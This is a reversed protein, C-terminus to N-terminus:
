KMDLLSPLPDPTKFKRRSPFRSLSKSRVSLSEGESVSSPTPLSISRLYSPSANPEEVPSSIPDSGYRRKSPTRTLGKTPAYGSSKTSDELESEPEVFLRKARVKQPPLSSSPVQPSSSSSPIHSSLSAVSSPELSSSPPATVPVAAHPSPFPLLPSPPLSFQASGFLPIPSDASSITNVVKVPSCSYDRKGRMLERDELVCSKVAEVAENVTIPASKTLNCAGCHPTTSVVEVPNLVELAKELEGRSSHMSYCVHWIGYEDKMAKTTSVSVNRRKAGGIRSTSPASLVRSGGGQLRNECTYWQTSPRIFLPEVRGEKKAQNIAHTSRDYLRPYGECIQLFLFLTNSKM